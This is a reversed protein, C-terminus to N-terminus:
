KEKKSTLLEIVRTRSTSVRDATDELGKEALAYERVSNEYDLIARQQDSDLDSMYKMM